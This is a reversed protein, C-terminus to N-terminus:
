KNGGKTKEDGWTTTGALLGASVDAAQAPAEPKTKKKPRAIDKARKPKTVGGWVKSLTNNPM